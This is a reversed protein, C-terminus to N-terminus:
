RTVRLKLLKWAELRSVCAELLRDGDPPLLILGVNVYLAIHLNKWMTTKM